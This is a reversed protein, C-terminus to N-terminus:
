LVGVDTLRGHVFAELSINRWIGCTILVPGWDWGFNCPEKRVWARGLPEHPGSWEYLVRKAQQEKMLPLPSAFAIEITNEGVKLASKADFEWTRFMNNARGIEQGNIKLTALTDLGECRLLVRPAALLEKPVRFSRQYVWSAEGVWQVEKENDRIFPDPIKRAGLLDTHICGPVVAPISETQGLKNVRWQGNLNIHWRERSAPEGVSMFPDWAYVAATATATTSLFKRKSLGFPKPSGEM